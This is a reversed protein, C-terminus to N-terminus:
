WQKKLTAVISRGEGYFCAYASACSAVYREDGINKVNLQLSLGQLDPSKAGFDYSAMADFLTVAGVKFTNTPDGQSTGIYRM